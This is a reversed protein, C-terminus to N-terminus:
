GFVAHTEITFFYKQIGVTACDRDRLIEVSLSASARSGIRGVCHLADHGIHRLVIPLTIGLQASWEVLCDNVFHMHSSKGLM